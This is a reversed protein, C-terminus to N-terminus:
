GTNYANCSMMATMMCHGATHQNYGHRNVSSYLQVRKYCFGHYETAQWSRYQNIGETGATGFQLMKFSEAGYQDLGATKVKQCEPV